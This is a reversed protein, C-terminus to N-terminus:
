VVSKRDVFGYSFTYSRFDYIMRYQELLKQFYEDASSTALMMYTFSALGEYNEFKNEEQTYKPYMERRASRFVLADRIAQSRTEGGTRIARELAKWELKLWLRATNDSMHSTNYDPSDFGKRIQYCHFLGHICRSTIRYHDENDPVPAMAYLTGGFERAYNMVEERPFTGTFVGEKPKLLKEKDQVNSYLKRTRYDILLIPGYLNEGWLEGGDNNCLREVESFYYKAKDATFYDIGEDEKCQPLLAPFIFILVIWKNM